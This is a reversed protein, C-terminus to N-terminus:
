KFSICGLDVISIRGNNTAYVNNEGMDILSQLELGKRRLEIPMNVILQAMPDTCIFHFMDIFRRSTSNKRKRAREQIIVGEGGGLDLLDLVNAIFSRKKGKLKKAASISRQSHVETIVLSKGFTYVYSEAGSGILKPKFSTKVGHKTCLRNWQLDSLFNLPSRTLKPM